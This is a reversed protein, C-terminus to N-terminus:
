YSSSNTACPKSEDILWKLLIVVEGGVKWLLRTSRGREFRGLLSGSCCGVDAREPQGM